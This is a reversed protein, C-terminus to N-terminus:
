RLLAVPLAIGDRLSDEQWLQWSDRPDAAHPPLRETENDHAAGAHQPWM